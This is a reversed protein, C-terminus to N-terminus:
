SILGEDMLVRKAIKFADLGAPMGAYVAVQLFADRIEGPTCGNTIAGRIHVELEHPRNLAALICLNNLSRQKLSLEGESAWIDGWAHETVLKQWPRDFDTMNSTVSDVYADGLVKRRVAMGKRYLESHEEEM